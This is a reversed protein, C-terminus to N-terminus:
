ATVGGERLDVAGGTGECGFVGNVCFGMDPDPDLELVM